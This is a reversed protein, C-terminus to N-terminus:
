LRQAYDALLGPPLDVGGTQHAIMKAQHYSKGKWVVILKFHIARRKSAANYVCM